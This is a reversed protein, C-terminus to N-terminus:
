SLQEQVIVKWNSLISSKFLGKQEVSWRLWMKYLILFEPLFTKLGNEQKFIQWMACGELLLFSCPSESLSLEEAMEGM